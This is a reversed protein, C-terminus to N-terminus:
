RADAVGKREYEYDVRRPQGPEADV